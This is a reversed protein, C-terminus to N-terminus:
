RRSVSRHLLRSVRATLEVPSFPKLVFDDAGLEFARVAEQENGPWALIIVPIDALAEHRRISRLLEFGSIGPLRAEILLLDAQERIATETVALGDGCRVVAHGANELRHEIVASVVQDDEALLIKAPRVHRREHIEVRVQADLVLPQRVPRM